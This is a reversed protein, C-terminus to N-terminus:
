RFIVVADKMNKINVNEFSGGFEGDTTWPVDDEFELNIESSQFFKIYRKDYKKSFVSALTDMWAQFSDPKKILMVEFKGDNLDVINKDLKIVNGLSLSNAVTGFVFEDWDTEFENSRVKVRIPHIQKVTKAGEYVYAAHGFRNKMWQPTDYSCSTFAGFSASYTFYSDSNFQGVDNGVPKGNIIVSIAKRANNPIGLSKALDNTTGSPIYGIPIRRDLTLIGNVVEHLTGDGGRCVIIDFKHSYRQVFSTADGRASTTYVTTEIGGRSFLDAIDLLQPSLRKRGACPNVIVMAKKEFYACM